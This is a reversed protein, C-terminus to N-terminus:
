FILIKPWARYLCLATLLYLGLSLADCYTLFMFVTQCFISQFFYKESNTGFFFPSSVCIMLCFLFIFSSSTTCLVKISFKNLKFLVDMIMKKM